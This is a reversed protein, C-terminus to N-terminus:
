DPLRFTKQGHTSDVRLAKENTWSVRGADLGADRLPFAVFAGTPSAAVLSCRRNAENGIPRGGPDMEGTEIWDYVCDIFAVRRSAPSWVLNPGFEHIGIHTRGKEQVVNWREDFGHYPGPKAGKPLPYVVTGDLLLYYSQVYPPAFHVIPGVHAIRSGDPSPTFFLGSMERTNRGTALDIEIFLSASPSGHCEIGIRGGTGIWQIKLLSACPEHSGGQSPRAQFAQLRKGSLDLIVVEPTCKEVETCMESYAVRSGDPSLVAEVKSKGDNTLQRSEGSRTLWVENAIVSVSPDQLGAAYLLVIQALM